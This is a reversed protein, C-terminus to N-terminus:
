LCCGILQRVCCALDGCCAQAAFAVASASLLGLALSARILKSTM